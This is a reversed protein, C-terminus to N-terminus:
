NNEFKPFSAMRPCCLFLIAQKERKRTESKEQGGTITIKFINTRLPHDPSGPIIVIL